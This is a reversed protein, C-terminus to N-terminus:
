TTAYNDGRGIYKYFEDLTGYFVDTVYKEHMPLIIESEYETFGHIDDIHKRYKNVDFGWDRGTTGILFTYKMGRYLHNFSAFADPKNTWSAILGHYKIQVPKCDMVRYVKGTYKWTNVSEMFEDLDTQLSASSRLKIPFSSKQDNSENKKRFRIMGLLMKYQEKANVVRYWILADYFRLKREDYGSGLQSRETWQSLASEFVYKNTDLNSYSGLAGNYYDYYM